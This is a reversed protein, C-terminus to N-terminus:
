KPQNGCASGSCCGGSTQARQAPKVAAVQPASDCCPTVVSIVRASVPTAIPVTRESDAQWAKLAERIVQRASHLFLAAIALGVLVDPWLSGSVAVLVAAVVVSANAVLDNRSCIWTSRMNLDDARHSYLLYFCYTNALLAALGVIGMWDALPAEQLILKRVADAIVVLGFLLMFGGKVLAAGARARESRNLVFLTLAYVSADGFMDLSDGLLATSGALWGATFEVLFMVANIALVIYLVRSQRSRLQALESAKNECCSDM